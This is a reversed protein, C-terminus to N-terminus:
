DLAEAGRINWDPHTAEGPTRTRTGHTQGSKRGRRRRGRGPEQREHGGEGGNRAKTGTRWATEQRPRKRRRICGRVSWDLAGEVGSTETWLRWCFSTGTRTCTKGQHELGPEMHKDAEGEEGEGGAERSKNKADKRMQEKSKNMNEEGSRETAM